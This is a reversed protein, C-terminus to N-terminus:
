GCEGLMLDVAETIPGCEDESVEVLVSDFEGIDNQAWIEILGSAEEGCFYVSDFGDECPLPEMDTEALSWSVQAGLGSLDHVTAQVAYRVEETCLVYDLEIELNETIVHCEDAEVFVTTETPEYGDAEAFITIDGAQEWGCIFASPAVLADDWDLQECDLLEGGNVSYQVSADFLAEGDPGALVVQVSSVAMDDCAIPPEYCGSLGAVALTALAFSTTQYSM